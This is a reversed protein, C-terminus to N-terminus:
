AEALGESVMELNINKGDLYIVGLVRGYRDTGHGKVDVVKGRVFKTLSEQNKPM